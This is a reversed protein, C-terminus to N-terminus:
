QGDPKPVHIARKKFNRRIFWDYGKPNMRLIAWAREQMEAMKAMRQEPTMQM